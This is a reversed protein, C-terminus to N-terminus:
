KSLVGTDRCLADHVTGGGSRCPDLGSSRVANPLVDVRCGGRELLTRRDADSCVYVRDWTRLVELEDARARQAQAEALTGQIRDGNRRYLAALRLLTQSELDDLDLHREPPHAGRWIRSPMMWWPSASSTSWPSPCTGSPAPPARRAIRAGARQMIGPQPARVGVAALDSSAHLPEGTGDAGRRGAGPVSAPDLLYVRYRAALLQLVMGARMALGNGHLSPIIPSLYLLAPKQDPGGSPVVPEIDRGTVIGFRSALCAGAAM